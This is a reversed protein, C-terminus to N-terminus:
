LSGGRDGRRPPFTSGDRTDIAAQLFARYAATYLAKREDPDEPLEDDAPFHDPCAYFTVGNLSVARWNSEVRPNSLQEKGCLICTMLEGMFVLPIRIM